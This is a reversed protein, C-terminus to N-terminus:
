SAYCDIKLSATISQKWKKQKINAIKDLRHFSCVYTAFVAVNWLTWLTEFYRVFHPQTEVKNRLIKQTFYPRNLRSKDQCKQPCTKKDQTMKWKQADELFFSHKWRFVLKKSVSRFHSWICIRFFSDVGIKRARLHRAMRQWERDEEAVNRERAKPKQCLPLFTSVKNWM